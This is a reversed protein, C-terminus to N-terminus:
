IQEDPFRKVPDPFVSYNPGLGDLVLSKVDSNARLSPGTLNLLLILPRTEAVQLDLGFGEIPFVLRIAELYFGCTTM